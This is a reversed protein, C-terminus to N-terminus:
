GIVILDIGISCIHSFNRRHRWVVLAVMYIWLVANTPRVACALAAITLSVRLESRQMYDADNQSAQALITYSVELFSFDCGM